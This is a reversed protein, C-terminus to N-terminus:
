LFFTQSFLFLTTILTSYMEQKSFNRGLNEDENKSWINLWLFLIFLFDWPTFNTYVVLLIKKDKSSVSRNKVSNLVWIEETDM